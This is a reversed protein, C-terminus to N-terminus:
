YIVKSEMLGRYRAESLGLLETFVHDNDQGVAPGPRIAPETRSSKVYAGYITEEYGLPHTVEIFTNRYRLHPNTALDSVDFVPTAAVGLGQLTDALEYDDFQRTWQSLREHLADINAVRGARTALAPDRAWECEGLATALGQWEVDDAVAIAIWRDEGRCPFVAHPAAAGVPHRNGIPGAVRGNEIYDFFAPGLLQVLGELQAYDVLQGEGTRERHHLALLIGLAGIVGGLPDAYAQEMVQMHDKGYGTVADLGALSSLSNGYTRFGAFPGTSGAASMSAMVIDPAVARLSDYGLGLGDMAGVSYNEIVVDSISVLRRALEVGEGTKLNLTISGNGGWLAHNQISRDPDRISKYFPPVSRQIDPRVNSEVKYVEAGLFGLLQGATPGVLGCGFNVVRIGSLPLARGPGTQTRDGIGAESRRRFTNPGTRRAAEGDATDTLVEGDHQGLLPAPRSPGGPSRSLLIPAGLTTVRGMAPHDLETLYEREQFQQNHALDAVTYVATVPCRNAQCLAMIEEKSHQVTWEQVLQQILDHNKGREFVDDFLETRAWEPDGMAERLGRWQSKELAIVLVHGDKCPMIGAPALLGMGGGGRRDFVGDQVYGGVTFAGTFLASLIEASAVDLHQGGGVQDRGLVAAVGWAAAVYGAFFDASFTGHELPERDPLGCYRSGAASLHYANLDYGNWEAYPGTQGFPTTSIMVLDPNLAELIPYELQLARLESQRYSSVLVDAHRVLELFRARDNSDTVDLAVSCKNTNLFFFTGSKERDPQDEPYPGWGRTVDGCGPQEVKIVDAGYDGFLRACFPGAVGISLDIVRFGALAGNNESSLM